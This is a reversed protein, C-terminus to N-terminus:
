NADSSPRPRVVLTQGMRLSPPTLLYALNMVAGARRLWPREGAQPHYRYDFYNYAGWDLIQFGAEEAVGCLEKRTYERFHGPDNTNERIMEYPHRGIIIKLRKHLATANPTQIILVGEPKVLTRLFRLVLRPATYLHEIVEALVVIDYSPIDRRWAEEKQASNLDFWYGQGFPTPQNGFFGLTDIPVGFRDHVLETFKSYGVDLITTEPGRFHRGILELLVAWRRSNFATYWSGPDQTRIRQSTEKLSSVARQTYPAM